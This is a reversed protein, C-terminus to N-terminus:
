RGGDKLFQTCQEFTLLKPIQPVQLDAADLHGKIRPVPEITNELMVADISRRTAPKKRQKPAKCKGEPFEKSFAQFLYKRIQFLYEKLELTLRSFPLFQWSEWSLIWLFWQCKSRGVSKWLMSGWCMAIEAPGCLRLSSVPFIALERLESPVTIKRSCCRCSREVTAPVQRPIRNWKSRSQQLVDGAICKCAQELAELCDIASLWPLSSGVGGWFSTSAKPMASCFTCVPFFCLFWSVSVARQMQEFTSLLTNKTHTNSPHQVENLIAAGFEVSTDPEQLECLSGFAKFQSTAWMWDTQVTETKEPRMLSMTGLPWILSCFVIRWGVAICFFINSCPSSDQLPEFSLNDHKTFHLITQWHKFPQRLLATFQLM